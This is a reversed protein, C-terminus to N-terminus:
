RGGEWGAVERLCLPVRLTLGQPQGSHPRHSHTRGVAQQKCRTRQCGARGIDKETEKLRGWLFVSADVDYVVSRSGFVELGEQDQHNRVYSRFTRNKTITSRSTWASM